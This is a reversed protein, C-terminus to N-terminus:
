GEERPATRWVRDGPQRITITLPSALVDFESGLHDADIGMRGFMEEIRWTGKVHCAPCEGLAYTTRPAHRLDTICETGCDIHTARIMTLYCAVPTHCGMTVGLLAKPAQQGRQIPM